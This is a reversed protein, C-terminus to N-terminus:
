IIPGYKLTLANMLQSLNPPRVEISYEQSLEITRGTAESIEPAEKFFVLEGISDRIRQLGVMTSFSFPLSPELALLAAESLFRNVHVHSVLITSAHTVNERKTLVYRTRSVLPNEEAMLVTAYARAWGQEIPTEGVDPMWVSEPTFQDIAPSTPSEPDYVEDYWDKITAQASRKYAEVQMRIVTPWGAFREDLLAVRESAEVPIQEAIGHLQWTRSILGFDPEGPQPPEGTEINLAFTIDVKCVSDGPRQSDDAPMVFSEDVEISTWTPIGGPTYVSYWALFDAQNSGAPGHWTEIIEWSGDANYRRRRSRMSWTEPIAM